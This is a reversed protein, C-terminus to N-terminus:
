LEVIVKHELAVELLEGLDDRGEKAARVFGCLADALRILASETESRIGRVKDTKVRLRRLATGVYGIRSKPLGDVFVTAKYNETHAHRLIARAITLITKPLYNKTPPYLAFYLKGHFLPTTLVDTMYRVRREDNSDLWKREKKGSAKEIALLEQDMQERDAQAVIVSVCFTTSRVDLGTEDVYCYLKEPAATM